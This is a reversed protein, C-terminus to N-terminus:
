IEDLYFNFNKKDEVKTERVVFGWEPVGQGQGGGLGLVM